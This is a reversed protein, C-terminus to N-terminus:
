DQKVYAGELKVLSLKQMEGVKAVMAFYGLIRFSKRVVKTKPLFYAIIPDSHAQDSRLSMADFIQHHEFTAKHLLKKKLRTLSLQCHCM